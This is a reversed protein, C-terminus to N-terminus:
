GLRKAKTGLDHQLKEMDSKLCVKGINETIIDVKLSISVTDTM